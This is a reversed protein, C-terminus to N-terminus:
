HNGYLNYIGQFYAYKSMGSDFQIWHHLYVIAVGVAVCLLGFLTFAVSLGIISRKTLENRKNNIQKDDEMICKVEFQITDSINVAKVGESPGRFTLDRHSTSPSPAAKVGESPGRFTLDRHSTAPSPAAKVGESPGRFTLDRHSTALSPAAKVGELSVQFTLDRHSTALSPAAKVGELSVQFTLDRHSTAQSQASSPEHEKM